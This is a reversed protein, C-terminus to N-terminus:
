RAIRACRPCPVVQYYLFGLAIVVLVTYLAGALTGTPLDLNFIGTVGLWIGALGLVWSAISCLACKTRWM